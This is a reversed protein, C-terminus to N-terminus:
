FPNEPHPPQQRREVTRSVSDLWSTMDALEHDIFDPAYGHDGRESGNNVWATVMGLAHAPRLNHAMDDAFFAAAPDIDHRDCLRAYSAPDPKPHFDMAIIDHIADFRDLIGIAALVREAYAKDGNTFVICRGPLRALAADLCPNPDLVSMDIDHVFDLFGHPDVGHSIMLGRLTTGHEHFYRKQVLRAEDRSLGLENAVFTEMRQDIQGFLNASAPYLTNDMDFLWHRVDVLRRYSADSIQVPPLPHNTPFAIM